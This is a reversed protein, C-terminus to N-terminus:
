PMTVLTLAFWRARRHFAGVKTTSELDSDELRFHGPGPPAVEQVDHLIQSVIFLCADLAPASYAEERNLLITSLAHDWTRFSSSTWPSPEHVQRLSAIIVSAIIMTQSSSTEVSMLDRPFAVKEAAQQM